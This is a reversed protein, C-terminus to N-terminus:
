LRTSVPSGFESERWLPDSSHNNLGRLLSGRPDGHLLLQVCVATSTVKAADPVLGWM